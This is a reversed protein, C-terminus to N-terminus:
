KYKIANVKEAAITLVNLCLAHNETTIQVVNVHLTLHVVANEMVEMVIIQAYKSQAIMEPLDKM